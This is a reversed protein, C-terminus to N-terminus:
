NKPPSRCNACLIVALWHGGGAGHGLFTLTWLGSVKLPESRRFSRLKKTV